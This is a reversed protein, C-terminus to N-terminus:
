RPSVAGTQAFWQHWRLGTVIIVAGHPRHDRYQPYKRALATIATTGEESAADVVVAHGDVRVWWLEGWEDSYHDVLVSVRPNEEINALRRLAQSRKPKHDVGTVLREDDLAFVIPVLHPTGDARATALRAVRAAAFARVCATDFSM